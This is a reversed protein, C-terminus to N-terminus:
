RRLGQLALGRPSLHTAAGFPEPLTQLELRHGDHREDKSGIAGRKHHAQNVWAPLATLCSSAARSNGSALFPKKFSM